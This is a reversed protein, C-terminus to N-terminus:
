HRVVGDALRSIYPLGAGSTRYRSTRIGFETPKLPRAGSLPTLLDLWSKKINQGLIYYESLQQQQSSQM